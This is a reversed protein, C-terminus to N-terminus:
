FSGSLGINYNGLVYYGRVGIEASQWALRYKKPLFWTFGWDLGLGGAMIIDVKDKSPNKGYLKNTECYESPNKVIDQTQNRDIVAIVTYVSQLIVEQRDLPEFYKGSCGSLVLLCVLLITKM